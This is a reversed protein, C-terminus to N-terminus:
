IRSGQYVTVKGKKNITKIVMANGKNEKVKAIRKKDRPSLKRKLCDLWKRLWAVWTSSWIRSHLVFVTPRPYCPTGFCVTPKNTLAGFSGMPSLLHTPDRMHKELFLEYTWLLCFRLIPPPRNVWSFQLSTHIGIVIFIHKGIRSIVIVYYLEHVQNLGWGSLM